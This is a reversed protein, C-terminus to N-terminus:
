AQRLSAILGMLNGWARELDYSRRGRIGALLSMSMRLMLALYCRWLSLEPYKKVFHIRNLVERTGFVRGSGRGSPAPDHRYLAEPAVALRFAKGVRYSFDLDELYSYGSFWEDFRNAQIVEKRWVVATSPLWQTYDPRETYGIMSQFGSLFVGGKRRGYLGLRESCRSAQLRNMNLPAHNKHNFAAGGLDRPAKEWFSLMAELAGAELVVDDDLFGILDADRDARDVGANRQRAASPPSLALYITPLTRFAQIVRDAPLRGGDVIIVQDPPRSQTKLSSLLNHLEKPRDKTAIILAIKADM